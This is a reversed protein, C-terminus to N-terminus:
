APLRPPLALLSRLQDPDMPRAYIYGQMEDCGNERLFRLQGEKEVGEAIVLLGLAHGLQIV